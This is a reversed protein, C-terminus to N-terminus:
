AGYYAQSSFYLMCSPGFMQVLMALMIPSSMCVHSMAIILDLCKEFFEREHTPIAVPSDGAPIVPVNQEGFSCFQGAGRGRGRERPFFDGRGRGQGRGRAPILAGVPIGVGFFGRRENCNAFFFRLSFRNRL